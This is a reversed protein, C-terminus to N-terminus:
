EATKSMVSEESKERTGIRNVFVGMRAGSYNVHRSGRRERENGIVSNESKRSCLGHAEMKEGKRSRCIYVEHM